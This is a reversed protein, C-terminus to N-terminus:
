PGRPGPPPLPPPGGPPLAQPGGSELFQVPIAGVGYDKRLPHGDWDEPMLIRDLDPHDTFTIGFMDYAERELFNAGPWVDTVSPCACDDEDVPVRVRLRENKSISLVNAVVEFRHDHTQWDDLYDVATPDALMEFGDDKLEVALEHWRERPCTVVPQDFSDIVELDARVSM